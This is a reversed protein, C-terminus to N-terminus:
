VERQIARIRLVRLLGVLVSWGHSIGLERHVCGPYFHRSRGVLGCLVGRWIFNRICLCDNVWHWFLFCIHCLLRSLRCAQNGFWDCRVRSLPYHRLRCCDWRVSPCVGHSGSWGGCFNCCRGSEPLPWHTAGLGLIEGCTASLDIASRVWDRAM